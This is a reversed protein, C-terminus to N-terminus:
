HSSKAEARLWVVYFLHSAIAAAWLFLDLRDVLAALVLAYAPGNRRAFRSAFNDPARPAMVDDDAEWRARFVRDYALWGSLSLGATAIAAAAMAHQGADPRVALAWAVAFQVALDGIVDAMEGQSGERVAARALDRAVADVVRSAFFVLAGLLGNFYGGQLFIWAAILGAATKTSSLQMPTVRTRALQRTIPIALYKEFLRRHWVEGTAGLRGFLKDECRGIAVNDSLRHCESVALQFVTADDPLAARILEGSPHDALEPIVEKLTDVSMRAMPATVRGRYTFRGLATGSTAKSFAVVAHPSIYWDGAIVLVEADDAGAEEDFDDSPLCQVSEDLEGAIEAGLARMQGPYLVLPELGLRVATAVHRAVATIGGIRSVATRGTVLIVVRERSFNGIVPPLEVV